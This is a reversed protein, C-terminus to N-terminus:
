SDGGRQDGGGPVVLSDGGMGFQGAQRIAVAIHDVRKGSRAHTMVRRDILQVSHNLALAHHDGGILQHKHHRQSEGDGSQGYPQRGFGAAGDFGTRAPVSDIENWSSSCSMFVSITGPMTGPIAWVKDNSTLSRKS